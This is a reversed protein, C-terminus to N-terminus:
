AAKAPRLTLGHHRNSDPCETQLARAITQMADRAAEVSVGPKLRGVVNLFHSERVGVQSPAFHAPIWYDMDRNRFAFSRPMVGIIEYRADNMLVTRGVIRPDGG